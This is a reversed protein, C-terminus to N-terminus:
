KVIIQGTMKPHVACFYEYSGPDKFVHSFQGDTDLTGSNFRKPKATSTVTHPVDDHNMWTVKTGIGVTLTPPDFSFNDILIQKAGASPRTGVSAATEANATRNPPEKICAGERTCGVAALTLLGMALLLARFTGLHNWM